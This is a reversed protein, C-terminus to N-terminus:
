PQQVQGNTAITLGQYNYDLYGTTYTFQYGDFDMVSQGDSEDIWARGSKM